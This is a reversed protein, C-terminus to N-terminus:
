LGAPSWHPNLALLEFARKVTDHVWRDDEHRRELLVSAEGRELWRGESHKGPELRPNLLDGQVRALMDVERREVGDGGRWDIIEVVPGAHLLEWGTEEHVERALAALLGEGGNVHGGVIDWCGPFLARQESRRQVYIRGRQDTILAGVVLRRGAELAGGAFRALEDATPVAGIRLTPEVTL